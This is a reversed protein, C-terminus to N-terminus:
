CRLLGQSDVKPIYLLHVFVPASLDKYLWCWVSCFNRFTSPGGSNSDRLAKITAACEAERKSWDDAGWELGFFAVVVSPVATKHKHLWNARSSVSVDLTLRM